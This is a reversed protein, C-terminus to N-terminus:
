VDEKLNNLYFRALTLAIAIADYEHETKPEVKQIKCYEELDKKLQVKTARGNGSIYKKVTGPVLDKFECERQASILAIIGSVMNTVMISASKNRQNKVPNFFLKECGMINFNYDKSLDSIFSYIKEIRKNFLIKNTTVLTGSKKLTNKIENFNEDYEIVIEAYGINALGQDVGLAYIKM